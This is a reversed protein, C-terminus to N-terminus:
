SMMRLKRRRILGGAIMTITAFLAGVPVRSEHATRCACGSKGDDNAVCANGPGCELAGATGGIGAGGAVGGVGGDIDSNDLLISSPLVLTGTAPDSTGGALLVRGDNLLSVTADFRAGGPMELATSSLAPSLLESPSIGSSDSAGGALLINGDSLLAIGFRARANATFLTWVGSTPDFLEGNALPMNNTLDDYSEYGGVVLVGGNPLTTAAHLGRAQQLNPGSSWAKTSPNYFTVASLSTTLTLGGVLMVRGDPLLSATHLGHSLEDPSLSFPLPPLPEWTEDLQHFLFAKTITGCSGGDCGGAILIDGDLLRVPVFYGAMKPTFPVDDWQGSTPDYTEADHSWLLTPRQQRCM